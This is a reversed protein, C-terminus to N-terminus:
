EGENTSQEKKKWGREKPMTSSNYFWKSLLTKFIGFSHLAFNIVQDFFMVFELVMMVNRQSIKRGISYIPSDFPFWPIIYDCKLSVSVVCIIM